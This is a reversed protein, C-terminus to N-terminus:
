RGRIVARYRDTLRSLVHAAREVATSAVAMVNDGREEIVVSRQAPGSLLLRVRKDVGGRPGNLDEITVEVRDLWRDFRDLAFELKRQLANRMSDTLVVGRSMVNLLM